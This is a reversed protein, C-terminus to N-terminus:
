KKQERAKRSEEAIAPAVYLVNTFQELLDLIVKADEKTIPQDEKPNKPHAADNGVLRVEHAWDKLEKTIIRQEFLWEIQKVLKEEERAGKDLCCSQLARRAMVGAARFASISFCRLAEEFDKRIPSPVREDVPEPLPAPYIEQPNNVGHYDKVLVARHCSNCEGIWYKGYQSPWEGRRTLFTYKHCYPCYISENM